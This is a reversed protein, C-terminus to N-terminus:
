SFKMPAKVEADSGNANAAHGNVMDYVYDFIMTKINPYANTYTTNGAANSLDTSAWTRTNNGLALQGIDEIIRVPYNELDQDKANSIIKFFSRQEVSFSANNSSALVQSLFDVSITSAKANGNSYISINIAM